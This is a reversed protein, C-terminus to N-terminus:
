KSTFGKPSDIFGLPFGNITMEFERFDESSKDTKTYTWDMIKNYADEDDKCEIKETYITPIGYLDEYDETTLQFIYDRM